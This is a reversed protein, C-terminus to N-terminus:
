DDSILRYELLPFFDANNGRFRAYVELKYRPEKGTHAVGIWINKAKDEASEGQKLYFWQQGVIVAVATANQAELKFKVNKNVKLDGYTPEHLRCKIWHQQVKPYIKIIHDTSYSTCHLVYRSACELIQSGKGSKAAFISFVYFGPAPFKLLYSVHQHDRYRQFYHRELEIDTKEGINGGKFYKQSINVPVKFRVNLILKNEQTVIYYGEQNETELGFEKAVATPGYGEPLLPFRGPMARDYAGSVLKFSCVNNYMDSKDKECAFVTFIYQGPFPLNVHFVVGAAANQFISHGEFIEGGSELRSNFMLNTASTSDDKNRKKIIIDLIGNETELTVLTEPMFKLGYQFFTSKVLPLNIFDKLSLPKDLLQWKSDDPFHM